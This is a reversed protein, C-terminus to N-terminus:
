EICKLVCRSRYLAFYPGVFTFILLFVACLDAAEMQLYSKKTLGSYFDDAYFRVFGPLSCKSPIHLLAVRYSGDFSRFFKWILHVPVPVMETTFDVLLFVAWWTIVCYQAVIAPFDCRLSWRSSLTTENVLYFALYLLFNSGIDHCSTNMSCPVSWHLVTSFTYDLM